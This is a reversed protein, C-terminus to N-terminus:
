GLQYDIVTVDDPDPRIDPSDELEPSLLANPSRGEVAWSM